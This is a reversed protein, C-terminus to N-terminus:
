SAVYAINIRVFNDSAGETRVTIQGSAASLYCYGAGSVDWETGFGAYTNINATPRYGSKITAIMVQSGQPFYGSEKKVVLNVITIKGLQYVGNGYYYASYGSELTMFNAWTDNVPAAVKASTVAGNAIDGTAITGDAIKASTVAGDAIMATEVAPVPTTAEIDDAWITEINATKNTSSNASFTQVNTGNHQITLTADNVTPVSASITNSSISINSGATLEAQLATKKMKVTTGTLDEYICYVAYPPVTSLFSIEFDHYTAGGGGAVVTHRTVVFATQLKSLSGTSWKELIVEGSNFADLVDQGTAATTFSSDKYWTGYTPSSTGFDSQTYFTVISAGTDITGWTGDGKLYKTDDGAAPAPALGSTGATSSSAGTMVGPLDSLEAVVTDDISIVDNTIDIGNGATYTTGQNQPITRIAQDLNDMNRQAPIVGGMDDVADYSDEINGELNNLESAISM